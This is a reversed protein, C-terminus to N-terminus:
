DPTSATRRNTEVGLRVGANDNSFGSEYSNPVIVITCKHCSDSERHQPTHRDLKVGGSTDLDDRGVANSVSYRGAMRADM